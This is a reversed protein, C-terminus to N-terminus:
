KTYKELIKALQSITDLTLLDEISLPKHTHKEITAVITAFEVSDIEKLDNITHTSKIDSEPINLSKAIISKALQEYNM